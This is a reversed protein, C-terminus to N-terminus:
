AGTDAGVPAAAPDAPMPRWVPVQDGLLQGLLGRISQNPPHRDEGIRGSAFFTDNWYERSDAPLLAWALAITALVTAAAVARRWRGGWVPM